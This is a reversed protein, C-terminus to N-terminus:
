YTVKDFPKDNASYYNAKKAPEAKDDVAFSTAPTFPSSAQPVQNQAVPESTNTAQQAQGSGETTQSVEEVNKVQESTPAIVESPTVVPEEKKEETPKSEVPQTVPVSTQPQPASASTGNGSIAALIKNAADNANLEFTASGFLQDGHGDVSDLIQSMKNEKRNSHILGYSKGADEYVLFAYEYDKCINFPLYDCGDLMKPTLGLASFDAASLTSYVTKRSDDFRVNKLIRERLKVDDKGFAYFYKTTIDSFNVDHKNALEAVVGFSKAKSVQHLGFTSGIIGEAAIEADIKEPSYDLDEFAKFLIESSTSYNEDTLTAKAYSDKLDFKSVAAINFKEIINKQDSYIRGLDELKQSNITIVLDYIGGEKAFRVKSFDIEQTQPTLIVDIEEGVKKWEVNINEKADDVKIVYSVPKIDSLIKEPDIGGKSLLDIFRAPVKRSSAIDVEKQQKNKLYRHLLGATACSDSNLTHPLIILIRSASEIQTKFDSTNM